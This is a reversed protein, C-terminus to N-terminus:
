AFNIRAKDLTVHADQLERERQKVQLQAKIVDVHAAEGGREQKETLDLFDRAERLSAEANVVKRQGGVLAYYDETVVSSLDRLALDNKAKALAEAAMAKHYSARMAPNYIDGHATIWDTYIHPGDNPVFIGSPTGNPQTYIYGSLASVTPRLANRAQIMDEHASLMAINASYAQQSYQRARALADNFTLTLAAGAPATQAAASGLLAWGLAIARLTCTM